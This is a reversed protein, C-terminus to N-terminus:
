QFDREEPLSAAHSGLAHVDPSFDAPETKFECVLDDRQWRIPPIDRRPAHPPADSVYKAVEYLGRLGRQRGHEPLDDAVTDPWIAGNLSDGSLQSILWYRFENFAQAACVSVEM